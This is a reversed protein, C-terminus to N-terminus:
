RSIMTDAAAPIRTNVTWRTFRNPIVVPRGHARTTKLKARATVGPGATAWRAAAEGNFASTASSSASNRPPSLM